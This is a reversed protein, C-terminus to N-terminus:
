ALLVSYKNCMPGKFKTKCLSMSAPSVARGFPLFMKRGSGWLKNSLSIRAHYVLKGHETWNCLDVLRFTLMNHSLMNKHKILFPSIKNEISLVVPRCQTNVSCRYCPSELLFAIQFWSADNRCIPHEVLGESRQVTVDCGGRVGRLHEMLCPTTHSSTLQDNHSPWLIMNLETLSDARIM